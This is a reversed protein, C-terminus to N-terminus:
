SQSIMEELANTKPDFGCREAIRKRAKSVTSRERGLHIAAQNMPVDLKLLYCLLLDYDAIKPYLTLINQKFNPEYYDVLKMYKDRLDEKFLEKKLEEDQHLRLYDPDLTLTKKTEQKQGLLSRVQKKAEIMNQKMHHIEEIQEDIKQKSTEHENKLRTMQAEAMLMNEEALLYKNTAEEIRAHSEQIKRNKSYIILIIILSICLTAGILIYSFRLQTRKLKQKAQHEKEQAINYNYLAQYKHVADLNKQNMQSYYATLFTKYYSNAEKYNGRDSALQALISNATMKTHVIKSNSLNKFIEFAKDYQESQIYYRGRLFNYENKVPQPYQNINGGLEVKLEQLIKYAQKISDIILYANTLSMDIDYARKHLGRIHAISKAQKSLIFFTDPQTTLYSNALDKLATPLLTSDNANKYAEVAMQYYKKELANNEIQGYVYGIISYLHGRVSNDKPINYCELTKLLIKLARPYDDKDMFSIGQLYGATAAKIPQNNKKYYNELALPLSDSEIHVYCKSQALLLTLWYDAQKQKDTWQIISDSKTLLFEYISDSHIDLNSQEKLFYSSKSSHTCNMLSLICFCLAIIPFLNNIKKMGYFYNIIGM